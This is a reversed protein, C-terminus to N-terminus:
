SANASPLSPQRAATRRLKPWRTAVRIWQSWYSARTGGRRTPTMTGVHSFTNRRTRAGVRYQVVFSKLGSRMVRVGFGRLEDDWVFYDRPQKKLAEIARITISPM